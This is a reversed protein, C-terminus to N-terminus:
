EGNLDNLAIEIAENSVGFIKSLPNALYSNLTKTDFNGMQEEPIKKIEKKRLVELKERSILLYNAFKQAQIELYSYQEKPIEDILKYLDEIKKIGFSEYLGKHLVMHGIEHALTFRLRNQYREDMYRDRDVYISGWDSTILADIDCNSMLNSVIIPKIKLSIEIIKEIDVPLSGGWHKERFSTAKKEIEKRDKFLVRITKYDM